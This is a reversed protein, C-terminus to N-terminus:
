TERMVSVIMDPGSDATLLVHPIATITAVSNEDFRARFEQADFTLLLTGRVPPAVAVSASWHDADQSSVELSVSYGEKAPEDDLLTIAADDSSRRLGYSAAPGGLGQALLLRPLTILEIPPEPRGIPPPELEGREAAMYLAYTAEYVEAYEADSWLAWWVHPFARAAAILGEEAEREVYAALDNQMVSDNPQQAAPPAVVLSAALLALAGRCRPCGAVHAAYAQLLMYHQRSDPVMRLFQRVDDCIVRRM